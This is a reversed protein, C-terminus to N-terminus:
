FLVEALILKLVGKKDFFSGKHGKPAESMLDDYEEDLGLAISPLSDSILNVWLIHLSLLPLPLNLLIFTLMVLIEGLNSSLLFLIAKKINVYIKRGEKIGLSITLFNDFDAQSFNLLSTLVKVFNKLM